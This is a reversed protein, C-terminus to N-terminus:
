IALEGGITGNRTLRDFLEDDHTVLITINEETAAIRNLWRLQAMVAPVDEKVWPAAKGKSQTINDMIWASDVSHLIERGSQLRIFVMQSDPSHGPSRILVVGPAVPYYQPYDLVIFKELAPPALKLHPRHPTNMMCDAVDMTIVTKSALESFNAACLVGAVHDAHHHTLVILRANGLARELKAFQEAFYPEPKDPSFSDHTAKDLGSDIMVSCDPYVIQFATRPMTVRTDDGGEIVFKRPRISAAVRVGNVALPLAGPLVMSMARIAALDPRFDATKRREASELKANVESLSM